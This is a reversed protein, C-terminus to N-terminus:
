IVTVTARMGSQFHNLVTTRIRELKTVRRGVSNSRSYAQAATILAAFAFLAALLAFAFTGAGLVERDARNLKM